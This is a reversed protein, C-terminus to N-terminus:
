SRARRLKLAEEPRNTILGEVRRDNIFREMLRRDDVTWVWVKIGYREATALAGDSAYQQDLAIFDTHNREVRQTTLGARIEPFHEKILRISDEMETTVVLKNPPLRELAARILDVEYGPEKLDLQLGIRGAAADLVENLTAHKGGPRPEDHSIVIVGDKTRRVDIELFDAGSNLLRPYGQHASVILV